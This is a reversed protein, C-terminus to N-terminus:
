RRNSPCRAPSAARASARHRRRNRASSMRRDRIRARARLPSAARGAQGTSRPDCRASGTWVRLAAVVDDGRAHGHISIAPEKSQVDIEDGIETSVRVLEPGVNRIDAGGHRGADVVNRRQRHRDGHRCWCRERRHRDPHPRGSAAKRISFSTSAQARSRPMEGASRRRRLKMRGSCNGYRVGVPRLYPRRRIRRGCSGRWPVPRNSRELCPPLRSRRLAQDAADPHRGIDLGAGERARLSRVQREFAVASDREVDARLRVALSVLRGVRLEHGVLEAQRDVPDFTRWPSESRRRLAAAGPPDRM